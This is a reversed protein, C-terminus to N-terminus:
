PKQFVTGPLPQNLKVDGVVIRFDLRGGLSHTVETPWQVGDIGAYKSFAVSVSALPARPNDIQQRPNDPELWRASSVLSSERDILYSVLRRDGAAAKTPLAGIIDEIEVQDFVQPQKASDGPGAAGPMVDTREEAFRGVERYKMGADRAAFLRDPWMRLIARVDRAQEESPNGAGAKWAVGEALGSVETAGDREIEVRLTGPYQRYLTLGARGTAMGNRDYYTITGRAVSNIVADSWGHKARARQEVDPAKQFIALARTITVRGPKTMGAASLSCVFAAAIVISSRRNIKM